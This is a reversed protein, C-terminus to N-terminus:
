GNSPPPKRLRYFGTRADGHFEIKGTDRLSDLDRQATKRSRRFERAVHPAKLRVGCTLQNLIWLRRRDAEDDPVDRVDDDLVDPVNTGDDTDTIDTIPAPTVFQVSVCKAFRYGIGGSLIVDKHGSEINAQKLLAERIDDRLDQIWRSATGKAGKQKARSELDEGSYASFSGDTRTQGLLELVVRRTQSRPGSCIVVGCFLVRDPHFVVEGGRFATPLEISNSTNASENSIPLEDPKADKVPSENLAKFTPGLMKSFADAFASACNTLNVDQSNASREVKRFELLQGSGDVVPRSLQTLDHGADVLRQIHQQEDASLPRGAPTLRRMWFGPGFFGRKLVFDFVISPDAQPITGNLEDRAMEGQDTLRWEQPKIEQAHFPAHQQTPGECWKRWADAWIEFEIPGAREIAEVFGREGTAQFRLEFCTPHNAITTRIWGRREVMGAATLLFLANAQLKTLRDHDFEAWTLPISRLLDAIAPQLAGAELETTPLKASVNEDNSSSNGPSRAM